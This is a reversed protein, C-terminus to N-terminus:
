KLELFKRVRDKFWREIGDIREDTELLLQSRDIEFDLLREVNHKNGLIRKGWIAGDKFSDYLKPVRHKEYYEYTMDPMWQSLMGYGNDFIPALCKLEFSDADLLVGINGAHRDNNLSIYDFVLIRAIDDLVGVDRASQMLGFIDEFELFMHIPLLMTDETTFLDCCSVGYREPKKSYENLRMRTEMSYPTHNYGLRDLVQHSMVEACPEHGTNYGGSLGGKLLQIKGDRRVWCKPLMGDTGFEPSTTSFKRGYLGGDFAIKAITEDFENRFLSVHGWTLTSNEPVVWLTDTLALGKSYDIIAKTTRLQMESLLRDMFARHKPPTRNTVWNQLSRSIFTPLGNDEVLRVTNPTSWEFVGLVNDKNKVVYRESNGTRFLADLDLKKITNM